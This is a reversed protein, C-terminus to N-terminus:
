LVPARVYHARLALLGEFRNDFEEVDFLLELRILAPFKIQSM